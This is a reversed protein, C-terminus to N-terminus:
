FCIIRNTEPTWIQAGSLSVFMADRICLKLNPYFTKGFQDRMHFIACFQKKALNKAYKNEKM